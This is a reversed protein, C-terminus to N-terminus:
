MDVDHLWILSNKMHSCAVPTKYQLLTVEFDNARCCLDSQRRKRMLNHVYYFKVNGARLTTYFLGSLSGGPATDVCWFRYM